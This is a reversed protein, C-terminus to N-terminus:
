EEVLSYKQTSQASMFGTASSSIVGDYTIWRGKEISFAAVAQYTVKMSTKITNNGFPSNMNGDVYEAIDYKLKVIHEGNKEEISIVKVHNQRYSSDCVFGQDMSIFQVSLPWTDGIKIAKGPLEFFMALMNKQANIMYFSEITGNEYISGRLMVGGLMRAMLMQVNKSGLGATDANQKHDENKLVMEIDIVNKRKETLHVEYNAHQPDVGLGKYLKNIQASISDNGMVKTIGDMSFDKHNATDIEDMSAKYSLVENPKLKWKLFAVDTSQSFASLSTLIFLSVFLYKIIHM